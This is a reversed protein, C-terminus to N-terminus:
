KKIKKPKLPPLKGEARLKDLKAAHVKPTHYKYNRNAEPFYKYLIKRAKRKLEKLRKFHLFVLDRGAVSLSYSKWTGSFDCNILGFSFLASLDDELEAHAAIELLVLLQGKNLSGYSLLACLVRFHNNTIRDKLLKKGSYCLFFSNVTHDVYVGFEKHTVGEFYGSQLNEITKKELLKLFAPDKSYDKPTISQWTM